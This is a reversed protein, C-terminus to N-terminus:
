TGNGDENETCFIGAFYLAVSYVGKASYKASM